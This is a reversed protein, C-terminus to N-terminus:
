YLMLLKIPSLVNQLYLKIWNLLYILHFLNLFCKCTISHLPTLQFEFKGNRAEILDEFATSDNTSSHEHIFLKM